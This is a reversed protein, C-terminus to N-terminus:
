IPQLVKNNNFVMDSNIEILKQRRISQHFLTFLESHLAKRKRSTPLITPETLDISM